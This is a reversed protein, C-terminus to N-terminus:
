SRPSESRSTNEGFVAKWFTTAGLEAGIERISKSTRKYAMSTTRAIVGMRDPNIRGLYCQVRLCKATFTVSVVARVGADGKRREPRQEAEVTAAHLGFGGAIRRKHGSLASGAM